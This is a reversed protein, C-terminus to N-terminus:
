TNKIEHGGEGGGQLDTQVKSSIYSVLRLDFGTFYMQRKHWLHLGDVDASWIVVCSNNTNIYNDM